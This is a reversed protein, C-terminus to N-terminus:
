LMCHLKTSMEHASCERLRLFFISFKIWAKLFSYWQASKWSVRAKWVKKKIRIGVQMFIRCVTWDRISRLLPWVSRSDKYPTIKVLLVSLFFSLVFTFGCIRRGKNVYIRIHKVRAVSCTSEKLRSSSASTLSISSLLSSLLSSLPSIVVIVACTFGTKINEAAIKSILPWGVVPGEAPWILTSFGTKLAVTMKCFQVHEAPEKLGPVASHCVCVCHM